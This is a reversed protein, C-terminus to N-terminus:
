QECNRGLIKTSFIIVLFCFPLHILFKLFVSSSSFLQTNERGKSLNAALGSHGLSHQDSLASPFIFVAEARSSCQSPPHLRASRHPHRSPRLAARLSAGAGGLGGLLGMRPSLPSGGGGTGFVLPRPWLGRGDCPRRLQTACWPEDRTQSNALM